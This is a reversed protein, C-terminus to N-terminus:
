IHIEGATVTDLGAIMLLLTSKGCGWPGLFVLFVGHEINLSFNKIVDVSGYRKDLGVIQIGDM